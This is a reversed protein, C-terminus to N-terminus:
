EKVEEYVTNNTRYTPDGYYAGIIFDCDDMKIFQKRSTENKIKLIKYGLEEAAEYVSAKKTKFVRLTVDKIEETKEVFVKLDYDIITVTRTM